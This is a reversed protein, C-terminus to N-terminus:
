RYRVCDIITIYIYNMVNKMLAMITDKLTQLQTKTEHLQQYIPLLLTLTPLMCDDSLPTVEQTIQRHELYARYADETRKYEKTDLLLKYFEPAKASLNRIFSIQEM